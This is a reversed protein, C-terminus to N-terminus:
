LNSKFLIPKIWPMIRLMFFAFFASWALLSIWKGVVYATPRYELQFHHDGKGLPIGIQFGNVPLVKGEEPPVVKWGRSYNDTLVLLAPRDTSAEVEILDTTLDKLQVHAQPKGGSLELGPDTEVLATELPDFRTQVTRELIEEPKLREVKPVFFARPVEKLNSREVTLHDGQDRFIYRLRLLGLAPSINRFFSKGLMDKNPDYDQSRIAFRAYRALIMPDEGGIDLGSAAGLTYNGSSMWVRYDGPDQDYTKQIPAVKQRLAELDFSAVNNVGFWFCEGLVLFPFVWKLVPWKLTWRSLLALGLLSGGAELLSLAMSGAHDVFQRFIKTHGTLIALYFLAAFGLFLLSGAMLPKVLGRLVGPEKLVRDYAMAALLALCLAFLINLKSIGRFRDFLPFYNCFLAFLPTRKGVMLVAVLLAMAGFVKRDPDNSAKWAFLALIFGTLTVFLHGEYYLGGGWYDRWGGYFSPMLLTCLREPTMDLMDLVDMSLGSSRVSERVADWGTLLQIAALMSGFVAMAAVGSLFRLKRQTRYLGAVSYFGVGLLTYYSYQIHGSFFQLALVFAGWAVWRTRGERKWGDVAWFVLPIWAMACLNSLHGELIRIYFAGSFMYIFAALLASAPHNGRGRVWIYTFWGALFFHLTMSLNLAFGVPLFMFFWNLPYLLASQFGGFFPAGCFLHPNWLALHGMKLEEFGFQRWWVFQSSMDFPLSFVFHGFPNLYSGFFALVLFALVGAASLDPHSLLLTRWPRSLSGAKPEM